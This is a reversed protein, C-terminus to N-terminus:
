ARTMETASPNCPQPRAVPQNITLTLNSSAPPVQHPALSPNLQGPTALTWFAEDLNRRLKVVVDWWRSNEVWGVANSGRM